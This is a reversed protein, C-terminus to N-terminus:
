SIVIPISTDISDEVINGYFVDGTSVNLDVILDKSDIPIYVYVDLGVRYIGLNGLEGIISKGFFWRPEENSILAIIVYFLEGTGYNSIRLNIIDSNWIRGAAIKVYKGKHGSAANVVFSNSVARYTKMSMLGDNEATAVPLLEGVISALQAKTVKAVDNGKVVLAYDFDTLQSVENLKKDAM